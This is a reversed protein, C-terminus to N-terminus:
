LKIKAKLQRYGMVSLLLAGIGLFLLYYKQPFIVLSGLISVSTVTPQIVLVLFLFVLWFFLNLMVVFLKHTVSGFFLVIAFYLFIFTILANEILLFERYIGQEALLDLQFIAHFVANNINILGLVILAINKKFM